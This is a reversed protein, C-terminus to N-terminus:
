LSILEAKETNEARSKSFLLMEKKTRLTSPYTQRGPYYCFMASGVREPSM